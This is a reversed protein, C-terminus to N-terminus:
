VHIDRREFRPMALLYAALGVAPMWLYTAPWGAGIPGGELAQHFPSLIRWPELRDIFAGAVYLVYGAVAVASGTAVAVGRRGIAAGVSFALLGHEIGILVMSVSGGALEGVGLGMDVVVAGIWTTVLVVAGLAVVGVILAAAKDALLRLRTVPTVLLTELTGAEEEGAVSRAGRSVGYVIFLAPLLISYLEANLFGAGTTMAEINFLELFAEPYSALFEEIDPIDRISPWLAVIVLTILALGGGWGILGRRQDRLDKSFVTRFM